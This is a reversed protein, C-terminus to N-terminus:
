SSHDAVIYWQGNIKKLLINFHGSLDGISRALMWKGVVFYYDKSLKKVQILDFSLKGMATVDPYGKKYNELTADWGWKVGNKGIFMLSDNKWYTQMFGELDGQNWALTQTHLIQRIQREERTQSFSVLSIGLLIFLFFARMFIIKMFNPILLSFQAPEYFGKLEPPKL